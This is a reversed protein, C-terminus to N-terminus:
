CFDVIMLFSIIGCPCDHCKFNEDCVRGRCGECFVIPNMILQLWIPKLLFGLVSEGEGSIWSRDSFIGPRFQFLLLHQLVPVIVLWLRFMVWRNGLVLLRLMLFGDGEGSMDCIVIVM